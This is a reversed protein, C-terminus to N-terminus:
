NENAMSILLIAFIAMIIGAWNVIKLKEKFFITGSLAAISVVSVNIIPFLVSSEFVEMSKVFAWANWFNISGLIIGGLIAPYAVKRNNSDKSTSLYFLGILFASFFVLSLFMLTEGNLFHHEVYKVLSDNLGSTLFLLFPLLIYKFDVKESKDIKFVFYFSVVALLIGFIKMSSITDDFLFFGIMVPIIVSMKSSVATISVGAKETSKSFLVFGAFFVFGIVIASWFWESNTFSQITFENESFILGFIFGFFYNFTIVQLPNIGLNHFIKFSIIILVSTIITLLLYLM